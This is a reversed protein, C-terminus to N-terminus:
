YRGADRKGNRTHSDKGSLIFDVRKSTMPISYEISVGSDNPIDADLLVKYMFQMSNIWSEIEKPSVSRKLRLRMAELIKVDIENKDVDDLFQKKLASYVIM